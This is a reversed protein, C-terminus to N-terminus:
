PITGIGRGTVISGSSEIRNGVTLSGVTEISALLAGGYHPQLPASYQPELYTPFRRHRFLPQVIPQYWAMLQATTYTPATSDLPRVSCPLYVAANRPPKRHLMDRQPTYWTMRAAKVDESAVHFWGPATEQYQLRRVM